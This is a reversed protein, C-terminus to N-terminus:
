NFDVELIDQLEEIAALIVILHSSDLESLEDCEVAMEVLKLVEGTTLKGWDQEQYKVDLWAAGITYVSLLKEAEEREEKRYVSDKLVEWFLAKEELDDADLYSGLAEGISGYDVVFIRGQM